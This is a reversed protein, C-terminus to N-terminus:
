TSGAAVRAHGLERWRSGSWSRAASASVARRPPSIITCASSASRISSEAGVARRVGPEQRRPRLLGLLPRDSQHDVGGPRGAAPRVDHVQAGGVRDRRQRAGLRLADVDRDLGARVVEGEVGLLDGVAGGLELAARRDAVGGVAVPEPGPSAAPSMSRTTVSWEGHVASSLGPCPHSRRRTPRCRRAGAPAAPRTSRPGRGRGRVPRRPGSSPWRARGVPDAQGVAAPDRDTRM